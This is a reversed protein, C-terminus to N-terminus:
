ITGVEREGRGGVRREREGDARPQQLLALGVSDEEEGEAERGEGAEGRGANRGVMRAVIASTSAHAACRELARRERERGSVGERGREREGGGRRRPGETGTATACVASSSATASAKPWARAVAQRPSATGRRWSSAARALTLVGRQLQSEASPKRESSPEDASNKEFSSRVGGVSITSEVLVTRGPTARTCHFRPSSHGLTHREFILTSPSDVSVISLSAPREATVATVSSQCRDGWDINKSWTVGRTRSM